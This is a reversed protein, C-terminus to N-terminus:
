EDQPQYEEVSAISGDENLRTIKVHEMYDLLGPDDGALESYSFHPYFPLDPSKLHKKLKELEGRSLYVQASKFDFRVKEYINNKIFEQIKSVKSSRLDANRHWGAFWCDASAYPYKFDYFIHFMFGDKNKIISVSFDTGQIHKTYLESKADYEWEEELEKVFDIQEKPLKGRLAELEKLSKQRKLEKIKNELEKIEDETQKM